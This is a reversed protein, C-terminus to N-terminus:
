QQKLVIASMSYISNVQFLANTLEDAESFVSQIFYICCSSFTLPVIVVDVSALLAVSTM